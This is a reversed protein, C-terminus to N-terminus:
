QKLEAKKQEFQSYADPTDSQNMSWIEEGTLYDSISYTHEAKKLAPFTIIQKMSYLCSNNSPSFWMEDFTAYATATDSSWSYEDRVKKTIADQYQACEQKKEFAAEATQSQDQELVPEAVASKGSVNFYVSVALMIVLVCIVVLKIDPKTM